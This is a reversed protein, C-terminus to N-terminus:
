KTSALCTALQMDESLIHKTLWDELFDMVQMTINGGKKYDEVLKAVAKVLDDHVGKHKAAGAYRVNAMLEEEMRFHMVTYDKLFDLIGGIEDRGKGQKMAAHLKNVQEVLSEHQEDIKPHGVKLRDGWTILAMTVEKKPNEGVATETLTKNPPELCHAMKAPSYYVSQM